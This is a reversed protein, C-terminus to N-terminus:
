LIGKNSANEIGAMLEKDEYRDLSLQRAYSPLAGRAIWSACLTGAACVAPM